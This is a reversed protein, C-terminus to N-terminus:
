HSESAMMRATQRSEIASQFFKRAADFSRPWLNLQEVRTLRSAGSSAGNTAGGLSAFLAPVGRGVVLCPGTCTIGAHPRPKHNDM